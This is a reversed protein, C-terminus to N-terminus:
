ILYGRSSLKEVSEPNICVQKAKKNLHPEHFDSCTKQNDDVQMLLRDYIATCYDASIGEVNIWRGAALTTTGVDLLSAERAKVSFNYFCDSDTKVIPAYKGGNVEAAWGIGFDLNDMFPTNKPIKIQLDYDTVPEDFRITYGQRLGRDDDQFSFETVGTHSFIIPREEVSIIKLANNNEKQNNDNLFDVIEQTETFYNIIQITQDDDQYNLVYQSPYLCPREPMKGEFVNVNLQPSLDETEYKYIIQSQPPSSEDITGSTDSVALPFTELFTKIVTNDQLLEEYKKLDRELNCDTFDVVHLAFSTQSSDGESPVGVLKVNHKDLPAKDAAIVTINLTQRTDPELVM